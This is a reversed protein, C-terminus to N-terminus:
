GWSCKRIHSASYTIGHRKVIRRIWLILGRVADYVTAVFGTKLRRGEDEQENNIGCITSRAFIAITSDDLLRTARWPSLSSRWKRAFTQYQTNLRNRIGDVMRVRCGNEITSAGKRPKDLKMGVMSLRVDAATNDRM